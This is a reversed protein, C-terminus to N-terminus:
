HRTIQHDHLWVPPDMSGTHPWSMPSAPASDPHQHNIKLPSTPDIFRRRNLGLHLLHRSVTRVSITIGDTALETAIHRASYQRLQDTRAVVEASIAFIEQHARWHAAIVVVSLAFAVYEKLEAHRQRPRSQAAGDHSSYAPECSL